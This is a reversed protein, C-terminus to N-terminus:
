KISLLSNINLEKNLMTAKRIVKLVNKKRDGLKRSIVNTFIDNNLYLYKLNVINLTIYKNFINSIISKLNLINNSNFKYNNFLLMSTYYKLLFIKRMREVLIKNIVNIYYINKNLYLNESSNM